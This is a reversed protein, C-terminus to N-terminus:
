YIPSDDWLAGAKFAEKVFWGNGAFGLYIFLAYVIISLDTVPNMFGLYLGGVYYEEITSFHFLATAGSVIGMTSLNDGMDVMRAIAMLLFSTSFADCGHDFLMGLPSSNGTRRAQKGDMEDLIRYM